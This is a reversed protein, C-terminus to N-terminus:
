RASVLTFRIARRVRFGLRDYLKKAPNDTTVHLMPTVGQSWLEATLITVLAAAYGRGRFAPDTCVASIETFGKPRLRQGAMAALRGDETRIGIYRGMRITDDLFPGPRTAATLALMDAVDGRDLERFALSPPDSVVSCVMQDLWFSSHTQWTDPVTVPDTTFLAIREGRAVLHSLDDFAPADPHEMAAFASVSPPYRRARGRSLAMAAHGSTLTSWIPNDLESLNSRVAAM